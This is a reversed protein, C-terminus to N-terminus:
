TLPECTSREDIGLYEISSDMLCEKQLSVEAETKPTRSRWSARAKKGGKTVSLELKILQLHKQLLAYMHSWLWLVPWVDCTCGSFLGGTM